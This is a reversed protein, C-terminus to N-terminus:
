MNLEVENISFGNESSILRFNTVRDSIIIPIHMGEKKRYILSLLSTYAKSTLLMKLSNSDLFRQNNNKCYKVYEPFIGPL